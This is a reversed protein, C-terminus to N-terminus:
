SFPKHAQPNLFLSDDELLFCQLSISHMASSQQSIHKVAITYARCELFTWLHLSLCCGMQIIIDLIAGNNESFKGTDDILKSSFHDSIKDTKDEVSIYLLRALPLSSSLM